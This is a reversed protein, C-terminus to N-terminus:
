TSCILDKTEAERIHENNQYTVRHQIIKHRSDQVNQTPLRTLEVSVRSNAFKKLVIM